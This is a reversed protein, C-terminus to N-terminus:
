PCDLKFITVGQQQYVVDVDKMESLRRADLGLGSFDGKAGLYLYGIGKGCLGDVSQYHEKLDKILLSQDYTEQSYALPGLANLMTGATTKRGTYYPIWYGADSGQSSTAFWFYTNVGFLAEQPTNQQIWGMAAVDAPTVFYRYVEIDNARAHSTIFGAFLLGALFINQVRQGAFWPYCRLEEVALGILLGVPLYLMILIAGMNTVKLLPIGLLYSYGILLLLALWALIVWALRSRRYLAFILGALALVGLWPKVGIIFLSALPTDYYADASVQVNEAVSLSAPHVKYNYYTKLAPFLAPSTFAISFVAILAAGVLFAKMSRTQRAQWFEVLCTILLLPLFFYAVRYHLLFVSATLMASVLVLSWRLRNEGARVRWLHMTEWDVLWAVLLIAQSAVQTFRGWNVYLSPQFSFLGVVVAGVLAGLRGVKRDLVLYVGLGCLGNLMQATWLLAMSAPVKAVQEVVGTIAYLGLHYMNLPTPFFPQLTEPLRGGTATLQTILTHHLSDTWGPYPYLYAVWLRVFVTGVLVALSFWELRDFSFQEKWNKRLFFAALVLLLFVLFLVKTAGIRFAPLFLRAAYFLVPFFAISVGVAVCWRQLGSWFKWAGSVALIAWGPVTFIVLLTLVVRLETTAFSSPM